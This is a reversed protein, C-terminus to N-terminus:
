TGRSRQVRRQPDGPAQVYAALRRVVDDTVKAVTPIVADDLPDAFPQPVCEAAAKTHIWGVPDVTTNL